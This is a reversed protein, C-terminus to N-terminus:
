DTELPTYKERELQAVLKKLQTTYPKVVENFTCKNLKITMFANEQPFECHIVAPFKVGDESLRYEDRKTRAILAGSSSYRESELIIWPKGQVIIKRQLHKHKADSYIRIEVVNTQGSKNVATLEILHPNVKEWNGSFLM